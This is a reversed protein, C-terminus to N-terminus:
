RTLCFRLAHRQVTTDLQNLQMKRHRVRGKIASMVPPLTKQDPPLPPPIGWLHETDLTLHAQPMQETICDTHLLSQNILNCHIQRAQSTPHVTLLRAHLTALEVARTLCVPLIGWNTNLAIHLAVYHRKKTGYVKRTIRRTRITTEINPTRIYTTIHPLTCAHTSHIEM